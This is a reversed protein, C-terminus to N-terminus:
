IVKRLYHQSLALLKQASEAEAEVTQALFTAQGHYRQDISWNNLGPACKKVRQQLATNGKAVSHLEFERLLLPLHGGGGKPVKGSNGNGRMICKIACEAAFGYLHSANALRSPVQQHLIKADQFHRKAADAYDDM